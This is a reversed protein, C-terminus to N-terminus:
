VPLDLKQTRLFVMTKHYHFLAQCDSRRNDFDTGRDEDGIFIAGSRCIFKRLGLEMAVLLKNINLRHLLIGFFVM